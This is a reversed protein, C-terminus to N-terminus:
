NISLYSYEPYETRQSTGRQKMAQQRVYELNNRKKINELLIIEQLEIIELVQKISKGKNVDLLFAHGVGEIERLMKVLLDARQLTIGNRIVLLYDLRPSFDLLTKDGCEISVLNYVQSNEGATYYYFAFFVGEAFIDEQRTFDISLKKNILWALKYDAIGSNIGIVFTDEFSASRIRNKEKHNM